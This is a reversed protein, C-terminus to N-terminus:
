QAVVGEVRVDGLILSVPDGAYVVHGPNPFQVFYVMDRQLDFSQRTGSPTEIATGDAAVIALRLQQTGLLQASKDVDVVKFRLDLLGGAATVGLLAIRVGYDEELTQQSISQLAPETAVPQPAPWSQYILYVALIGVVPLLYKIWSRRQLSLFGDGFLNKDM